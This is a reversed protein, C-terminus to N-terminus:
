RYQQLRQEATCARNSTSRCVPDGTRNSRLVSQRVVEVFTKSWSRDFSKPNMSDVQRVAERYRDFPQHGGFHVLRVADVNKLRRSKCSRRHNLEAALRGLTEWPEATKREDLEQINASPLPSALPGALEWISHSPLPGRVHGALERTGDDLLLSKSGHM